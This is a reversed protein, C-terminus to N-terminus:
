CELYDMLDVVMQNFAAVGEGEIMDPPLPLGDSRDYIWQLKNCCEEMEGNDYFDLALNLLVSFSPNNITIKGNSVSQDLFEIVDIVTPPIAAIGTGSIPVTYIIDDTIILEASFQGELTPSFTVEFDITQNYGLSTPLLISSIVEFCDDGSLDIDSIPMSTFGVNTLSIVTIQSEGLLVDGFDYWTPNLTYEASRMGLAQDLVVQEDNNLMLTDDEKNCSGLLLLLIFTVTLKLVHRKM